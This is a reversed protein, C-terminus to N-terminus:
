GLAEQVKPHVVEGARLVLCGRTIEDKMDFALAGDRTLHVLLKEMNRSYMQSAHVALRSPLNVEGVLTVGHKVVTRGPETLECNGSQEAALDVIVSGPKMRRVMAETLLVPARKGPVLATTICVDAAALREELLAAQRRKYDDSVERAYGGADQADETSDVEVFKAGLSEVQEKAVKRVDFAEVV